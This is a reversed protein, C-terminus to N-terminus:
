SKLIEKIGDWDMQSLKARIEGFRKEDESPLRYEQISEMIMRATDFDMVEATESLAAYADALMYPPIEPQDESKEAVPSLIEIYSRYQKLLDDTHEKIYDTNNENGADELRGAKASLEVAGIIRASSKLAHVKITYNKIDGQRYYSEIEEAKASIAAYFGELVTLYESTGGSNKVGAETDLGERGLLWEPLPEEEKEATDQDADDGSITVKEEPLYEILMDELRGTDIPKTLYDDFGESLYRERAGSIANATLCVAPTGTNPNAEEGRLEHLTQIGDKEPMMHDIFILDYKKDRSLKLCEDGSQATDIKVLTRKLLNGFVTLNTETDDAVLIMAEPATFKERYKKRSSLSARYSAEYDGIEEWGTVKQKLRFSFASGEGYVSKVQLSTDMMELLRKTINMGLGTGEVNRNREEEIREFESFLKTMDEPKIGIGTDEVSIILFINEGDDPIKEYSAHFTVSGKETYKVANTLLNTVVQKIRVEDGYLLKPIDRGIDLRLELGKADAKMQIMNVLDNIVSSLDYEVPIIEMKGAEIKSFDLIDNVLGLLTNGATRISEAYELVNEEGSERLIMENMGLVANIPTRIEHSMNSLFSSKAESAAMARESMDILREREKREKDIDETVWLIRTIRGDQDRNSVIIRGRKWQGGRNLVERTWVDEERMRESITSLDTAARLDDDICSEDITKRIMINVIQQLDLQEVKELSETSAYGARLERFTNNSLDLEYMSNYINAITSIIEMQEKLKEESDVLIRNREAMSRIQERQNEAMDGIAMYLKEVEDGTRIELSKIKDVNEDLKERDDDSSIFNEACLAISSIPYVFFTDATWMEYALLLIFFGALIVGVRLAFIGLYDAMYALSVDAGAYCACNGDKDRVPYYATMVWGSIDNSEIPEIEEGSFLAPLYPEFAEEFDIREGPEYPEVDETALDFVLYCGDEKIKVAYLYEVGAASDRLKYLLRETEAYGDAARGKEIYEDVKEADILEAAMKATNIATETKEEKEKEFYLRIGIMGTVVVILVSVTILMYAMRKRVSRGIDRGWSHIESLEEASLPHQRWGGARIMEKVTGPIFCLVLLALLLSIGKDAMNFLSNLVLFVPLRFVATGSSLREISATMYPLQPGGFLGWQILGSIIGSIFGAAITFKIITFLDFRERKRAAWAAYIAVLANVVGFYVVDHNILMYLTNSLVATIIGPLLGGTISVLITGTTDLYLPLDLRGSLFSLLLNVAIGAFICGARLIGNRKSIDSHDKM